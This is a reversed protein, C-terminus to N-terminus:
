YRARLDDIRRALDARIAHFEPDDRLIHFSLGPRTHYEIMPLNFFGNEVAAKLTDLAERRHGLLAHTQATFYLRVPHHPFTALSQQLNQLAQERRGLKAYIMGDQISPELNKNRALLAERYRVASTWMAKAGLHDGATALVYGQIYAEFEHPPRSPDGRAIEVAKAGQGTELYLLMGFIGTQSLPLPSIVELGKKYQGLFLYMRALQTRFEASTPEGALAKEYLPVARDYLGNRYYAHAAAAIADLDDPSSELARRAMLLGEVERGNEHHIYVLARIAISSNPDRSLAQNASSIAKRLTEPDGSGDWYIRVQALALWGYADAFGPDLQVARQLMQVATEPDAGRARLVLDYAEPNTARSKTILVRESATIQGRVRQAAAEALQGEIDLLKEPKAEFRDIAWITYGSKSDVGHVSVRLRGSAVRVTGDIVSEVGLQRGIEAAETSGKFRRVRSYSVVRLGKLNALRTILAETIGDALYDGGSDSVTRFPLVAVSGFSRRPEERANIWIVIAVAITGLLALGAWIIPFRGFREPEAVVEEEVVTRSRIHEEIQLEAPLVDIEEVPATFRYGRRPHNEICTASDGLAKRLLSIYQTLTGEDVFTDPWLQKMMENKGLVHGSNTVLLLLTDFVKPPLALLEGERYLLRDTVDLRFAGFQFVHRAKIAM